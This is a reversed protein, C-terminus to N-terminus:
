LYPGVSEVGGDSQLGRRSDFLRCESVPSSRAVVVVSSFHVLSFIGTQRSWAALKLKSNAAALKQNLHGALKAAM